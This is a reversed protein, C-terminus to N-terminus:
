PTECTGNCNSNCSVFQNVNEPTLFPPNCSTFCNLPGVTGQESQCSFSAQEQAQQEARDHIQDLCFQGMTGSCFGTATGSGYIPMTSDSAAFSVTAMALSILLSAMGITKRQIM